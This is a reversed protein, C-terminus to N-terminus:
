RPDRGDPRPHVPLVGDRQDPRAGALAAAPRRGVRRPEDTSLPLVRHRPLHQVEPDPLDVGAARDPLVPHGLDGAHQDGPSPRSFTGRYRAALSASARRRREPLHHAGGIALSLTAPYKEKLEDTVERNTSYSIGLCPASCEYYETDSYTSRAGSSSARPGTATPSTCRSTSAWRGSSDRSSRPPAASSRRACRSPRTAEARPLLDRLRDDLHLILVLLAAFMRRVIYGFVTPGM